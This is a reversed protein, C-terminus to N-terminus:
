KYGVRYSRCCAVNYSDRRYLHLDVEGVGRLVCGKM